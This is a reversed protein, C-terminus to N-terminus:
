PRTAELVRSVLGRPIQISNAKATFPYQLRGPRRKATERNVVGLNTEGKLEPTFNFSRITGWSVSDPGGVTDGLMFVETSRPKARAATARASEGLM